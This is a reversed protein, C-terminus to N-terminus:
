AFRIFVYVFLCLIIALMFLAFMSINRKALKTAEITSKSKILHRHFGQTTEEVVDQDEFLKENFDVIKRKLAKTYRLLDEEFLDGNDKTEHKVIKQESKEEKYLPELMKEYKEKLEYDDTSNLLFRLALINEEREEESEEKLTLTKQLLEEFYVKDFM